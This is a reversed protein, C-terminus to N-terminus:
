EDSCDRGRRERGAIQETGNAARNIEEIFAVKAAHPAGSIRSVLWVVAIFVTSLGIPTIVLWVWRVGVAVARGIGIAMWTVLTLGPIVVSFIPTARIWRYLKPAYSRQSRSIGDVVTRLSDDGGPEARVADFLLNMTWNQRLGIFLWLTSTAVGLLLVPMGFRLRDSAFYAELLIAHFILSWDIRQSITEGERLLYEHVLTRLDKKTSMRKDKCYAGLYM